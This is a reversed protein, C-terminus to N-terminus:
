LQVVDVTPLSQVMLAFTMTAHITYISPAVITMALIVSLAQAGSM